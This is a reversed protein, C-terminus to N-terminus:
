QQSFFYFKYKISKIDITILPPIPIIDHKNYTEIIDSSIPNQVM